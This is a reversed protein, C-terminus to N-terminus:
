QYAALEACSAYNQSTGIVRLAVIEIPTSLTLEFAQGARIMAGERYGPVDGVSVWSGDATKKVEFRPIDRFWGGKATSKGHMFVLRRVLAPRRLGVLFYDLAPTQGKDTTGYTDSREDTISGGEQGNRSWHETEFATVAVPANSLYNTTKTWVFPESADMYPVFNLKGSRTALGRDVFRGDIQYAGERVRALEASTPAARFPYPIDPNLAAELSLIQPGRQLAISDPYEQGGGIQRVTMDMAIQIIDGAKWARDIRLFQGATGTYSRGGLSARYSSTWEPVRLFLPMPRAAAAVIRLTVKSNDPFTTESIVRMGRLTVEGPAYLLIAVGDDKEGWTLQPIM